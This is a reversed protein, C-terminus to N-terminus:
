NHSAEAKSSRWREESAEPKNGLIGQGPQLVEIKMNILLVRWSHAQQNLAVLRETLAKISNRARSNVLLILDIFLTM